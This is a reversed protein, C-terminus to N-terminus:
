LLVGLKVLERTDSTPFAVFELEVQSPDIIVSDAQVLRFQNNEITRLVYYIKKLIYASTVADWKLRNLMDM